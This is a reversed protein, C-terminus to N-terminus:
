NLEIVNPKFGLKKLLQLYDDPTVEEWKKNLLTLLVGEMVNTGFSRGNLVPTTTVLMKAGKIKLEEVDEKTTTNTLIIKGDIREPLHKKIYLYDGAIIDAWQYYRDHRTKKERIEQEKGTPYLVQFPLKTFIPLLLAALVNLTGLKKIPIPIGLAFILDGFIVQAGTEVLAEAMGFRDVGSVLLVKSKPTIIGERALERVVERELTNKLGSGDVAPTTKVAQLLRLGDRIAYRRGGAYLYVDIGGLGIADVKGDLEKLVELAKNYDGDTGRREIIFKEGLFEAELAKDRKSSGLSVSVVRKM